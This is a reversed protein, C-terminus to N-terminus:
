TPISVEYIAYFLFRYIKFNDNIINRALGEYMEISIQSRTIIARHSSWYSKKDMTLVHFLFQNPYM